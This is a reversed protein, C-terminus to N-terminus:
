IRWKPKRKELFAAMGEQGEESIRAEAIMRATYPILQDLDETSCVHAILTKCQTLAQPSNEKLQVIINEVHEDMAKVTEFSQNILGYQTATQGTFRRATLMLEKAKFEGTRKIVYPSITAPIIGIKVESFSFVTDDLAYAMDCATLLGNGGGMAAGHVVAITPKPFIYITHFCQALLLNEQYNDEFPAKVAEKMWQIDAGACFVKGKGRLLLVRLDEKQASKLCDIIESIMQGNIANRVNPRSLWLTGVKNEIQFAITQYSKM